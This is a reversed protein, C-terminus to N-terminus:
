KARAPGFFRKLQTQGTEMKSNKMKRKSSCSSSKRVKSTPQSSLNEMSLTRDNLNRVSLGKKAPPAPQKKAKSEEEILILANPDVNEKNDELSEDLVIGSDELATSTAIPTAVSQVPSAIAVASSEVEPLELKTFVKARTKKQEEKKPGTPTSESDIRIAKSRAEKLPVAAPTKFLPSVPGLDSFVDLCVLRDRLAFALLHADSYAAEARKQKRDVAVGKLYDFNNSIEDLHKNLYPYVKTFTTLSSLKRVSMLYKVSRKIILQILEKHTMEKAGSHAPQEIRQLEDALSVATDTFEKILPFNASLIPDDGKNEELSANMAYSILISMINLQGETEQAKRRLPPLIEPCVRGFFRSVSWVDCSDIASSIMTLVLDLCVKLKPSIEEIPNENTFKVTAKSSGIAGSVTEGGACSMSLSTAVSQFCENGAILKDVADERYNDPLRWTPDTKSSKEISQVVEIQEPKIYMRGDYEEAFFRTLFIECETLDVFKLQGESM